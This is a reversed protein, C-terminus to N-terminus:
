NCPAVRSAARKEVAAVYDEAAAALKEAAEARALALDREDEVLQFAECLEARHEPTVEPMADLLVDLTHSDGASQEADEETDADDFGALKRLDEEHDELIDFAQQLDDCTKRVGALLKKPDVIMEM